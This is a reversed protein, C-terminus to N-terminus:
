APPVDTQTENLTDLMVAAIMRHGAASPHFTDFYILGSGGLFATYVDAIVFAGPQGALSARIEGNLRAVLADYTEALSPMASGSLAPNYLTQVILLADPNLARLEAIIGDFNSRFAALAPEAGTYDGRKWDGLLSIKRQAPRLIDNGGISVAIIDAERVRSRAQEDEKLKQLLQESVAGAHALNSLEYGKERAVIWPFAKNRNLMNAGAAISDGLVVFRKMAAGEGFAVTPVPRYFGWILGVTLTLSLALLLIFLRKM